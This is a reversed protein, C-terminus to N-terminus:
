QDVGDAPPRYGMAVWYFEKSTARKGEPRVERIRSFYPRLQLRFQQAEPGPFGKLILRGEPKLVRLAVVLAADYLEECMARDVHVVGTLKPAADSLVLDAPGGLAAHLRTLTEPLTFDAQILEVPPGMEDIERLDLGVVRGGPGVLSALRQLWGGPWAGLEV